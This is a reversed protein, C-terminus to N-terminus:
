DHAKIMAIYYKSLKSRLEPNLKEWDRSIKIMEKLQEISVPINIDIVKM